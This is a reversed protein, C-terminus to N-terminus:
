EALGCLWWGEGPEGEGSLARGVAAGLGVAAIPPREGDEKVQFASGEISNTGTSKKTDM